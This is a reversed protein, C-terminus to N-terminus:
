LSIKKIKTRKAERPYASLRGWAVHIFRDPFLFALSIFFMRSAETLTPLWLVKNVQKWKNVMRM